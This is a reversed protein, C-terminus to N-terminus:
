HQIKLIKLDHATVHGLGGHACGAQLRRLMHQDRSEYAKISLLYSYSWWIEATSREGDVLDSRVSSLEVFVEVRMSVTIRIM